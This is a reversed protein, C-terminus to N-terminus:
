RLQFRADDTSLDLGLILIWESFVPVHANAAELGAMADAKHTIRTVGCSEGTEFVLNVGGVFFHAASKYPYTVAV